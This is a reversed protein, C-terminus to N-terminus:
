WTSFALLSRSSFGFLYSSKPEKNSAWAFLDALLPELKWVSKSNILFATKWNEVTLSLVRFYFNKSTESSESM